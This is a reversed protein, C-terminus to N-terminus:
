IISMCPPGSWVSLCEALNNITLNYKVSIYCRFSCVTNLFNESDDDDLVDPHHAILLKCCDYIATTQSDDTDTSTREALAQTHESQIFNWLALNQIGFL